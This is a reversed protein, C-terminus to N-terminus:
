VAPRPWALSGRRPQQPNQPECARTGGLATAPSHRPGHQRDWGLPLGPLGGRDKATPRDPSLHFYSQAAHQTRAPSTVASRPRLHKSPSPSEGHSTQVPTPSGYGEPRAKAGALLAETVHIDRGKQSFRGPTPNRPLMTEARCVAVSHQVKTDRATPAQCNENDGVEPWTSHSGRLRRSSTLHGASAGDWNGPPGHNLVEHKSSTETDEPFRGDFDKVQM